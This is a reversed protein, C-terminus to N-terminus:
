EVGGIRAFLPSAEAERKKAEEAMVARADRIADDIWAQPAAEGYTGRYRHTIRYPSHGARLADLAWRGLRERRVGEEDGRRQEVLDAAKVRPPPPAFAPLEYGCQTCTSRSRGWAFCKSCQGIPPLAEALRIGTGDLSFTHEDDLFGHLHVLGFLDIVTCRTKGTEPSPRLGRGGKQIWDSISGCKGAHIVVECPPLDTGETLIRVNTLVRCRGAIFDRLASERAGDSTKGDICEAAVGAACLNEAVSRAHHVSSCFVIGQQGPTHRQYAWTVPCAGRPAAPDIAMEEQFEAPALIVSPMLHGDGVLEKVTAGVLLHDFLDGLPSGDARVPTADLGLLYVGKRAIRWVRGWEKAVYHRAEDLVILGVGGLFASLEDESMSLLTQISAITLSADRNGSTRGAKVVCLDAASWGEALIRDRPQNVLEDRHAIWGVRLGRKVAMESCRLGVHTKGAGTPMQILVRRAGSSVLGAYRALTRAQHLRDARM